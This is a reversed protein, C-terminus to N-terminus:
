EVPPVAPLELRFTSGEGPVSVATLTGGHATAIAHCIPLGLGMGQGVDRTTFFPDFIREMTAAEIGRGNDTVELVAGGEDSRSLRLAIKGRRGEPISFAANTVLNVVVQELQGASAHVDPV